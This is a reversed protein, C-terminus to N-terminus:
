CIEPKEKDLVAEKPDCTFETREDQSFRCVHLLEKKLRAKGRHLRVKVVDRSVGLIEAIEQYALYVQEFDNAGDGM